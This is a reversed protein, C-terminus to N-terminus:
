NTKVVKKQSLLNGDKDLIRILYVGNPQSSIDITSQAGHITSQSYVRQGLVSYIEVAGWGSVVSWQITFQGSTPNPYLNINEITECCGPQSQEPSDDDKEEPLADPCAVTVSNTASCSHADSVKVTYAGDVVTISSTTKGDSWIYKYAPTGGSATLTLTGERSGICNTVISSSLVAPQTVVMGTVTNTCGKDDTVVVSYTGASLGSATVLTSGNSWLYHYPYNGGKAGLTISGGTGGDCGVNTITKVSDRMDNPQTVV